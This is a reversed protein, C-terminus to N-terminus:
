PPCPSSTAAPFRTPGMVAARLTCVNASTACVGNGPNADVQDLNSTVAFGAAGAPAPLVTLAALGM